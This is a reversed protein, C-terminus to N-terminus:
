MIKWYSNPVRIALLNWINSFTSNHSVPNSMSFSPFKTSFLRVSNSVIEGTALIITPSRNVFTLDASWNGTKTLIGIKLILIWNISFAQSWKGLRKRRFRGVMELAFAALLFYYIGYITIDIITFIINMLLWRKQSPLLAGM